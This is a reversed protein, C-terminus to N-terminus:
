KALEELLPGYNAFVHEKAQQFVNEPMAEDQTDKLGIKNFDNVLIKLEQQEKAPLAKFQEFMERASM